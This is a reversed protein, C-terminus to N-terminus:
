DCEQILESVYKTTITGGRNCFKETQEEFITTNDMMTGIKTVLIM